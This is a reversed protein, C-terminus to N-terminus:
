FGVRYSPLNNIRITPAVPSSGTVEQTHLVISKSTKNFACANLIVYNVYNDYLVGFKRGVWRGVPKPRFSTGVVRGGEESM